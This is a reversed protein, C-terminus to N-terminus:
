QTFFTEFKDANSTQLNKDYTITLFNKAGQLVANNHQIQLSIESLGSVGAPKRLVIENQKEPPLITNGNMLWYFQLNKEPNKTSFYYPEAELSIESSTLNLNDSVAKNQMKGYLPNDEYLIILPDIPSIAISNSATLTEDKSKVEVSIIDGDRVYSDESVVLSQKGYGSKSGLITGNKSWTYILQSPKISIGNTGVINPIASIVVIGGRSHLAKSKYFPPTYSDVAEWVLAVEAPIIKITKTLVSSNDNTKLSVYVTTIVGAGGTKISISKEGIGKKVTKGNVTWSIESNDLNRGFSEIFLNVTEFSKPNEPSTRIQLDSSEIAVSQSYVPSFVFFCFFTTILLFLRATKPAMKM